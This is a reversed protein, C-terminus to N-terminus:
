TAVESAEVGSPKLSERGVEVLFRVGPIGGEGAGSSAALGALEGPLAGGFGEM